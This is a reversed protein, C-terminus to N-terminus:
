RFPLSLNDCVLLQSSESQIQALDVATKCRDCGVTFINQNIDLYKGDGCGEFYALLYEKISDFPDYNSYLIMNVCMGIDAVLSFPSLDLLFERVKKWAYRGNYKVGISTSTNPYPESLQKSKSNYVDISPDEDDFSSYTAENYVKHVFLKEFNQWYKEDM